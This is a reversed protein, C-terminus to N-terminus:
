EIRIIQQDLTWVPQKSRLTVSLDKAVSTANGQLAFFPGTAMANDVLNETLSLNEESAIITILEVGKPHSVTFQYESDPGPIEIPMGAQVFNDTTYRNPYIQHVKGSTGTDFVWLYADETTEVTLTLNDGNKYTRDQRNVAANVKLNKGNNAGPSVIVNVMAQQRIDLDKILSMKGGDSDAWALSLILGIGMVTMVAMRFLHFTKTSKM